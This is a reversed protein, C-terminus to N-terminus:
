GVSRIGAKRLRKGLDAQAKGVIQDARHLTVGLEDGIEELTANDMWMRIAKARRPMVEAMEDIASHTRDYIDSTIALHESDPPPAILVSEIDAEGVERSVASKSMGQMQRETFLDEPVLNAAECLRMVSTRWMGDSRIPKIKLAALACMEGVSLGNAKAFSSPNHGVSELARMFRANRVSVKVRYDTM